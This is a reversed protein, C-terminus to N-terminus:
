QTKQARGHWTRSRLPRARLSATWVAAILAVGLATAIWWGPGSAPSPATSASVAVSGSPAVGTLRTVAQETAQILDGARPALGTVATRELRGDRAVGFGSPMVVLLQGRYDLSLETGLFAAYSSPREWLATVSGLDVRHSIVAVRLPHGRRAARTLQNAITEKEAYTAGSDDSLFVPPAAVLVDSAPDGDAHAPTIGIAGGIMLALTVLGALHAL